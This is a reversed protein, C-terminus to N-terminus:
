RKYSDLVERAAGSVNNDLDNLAEKLEPIAPAGIGKLIDIIIQRESRNHNRLRSLLHPITPRSASGCKKLTALGENVAKEDTEKEVMKGITMMESVTLDGIEGLAEVARARVRCDRDQLALSLSSSAKRALPGLRQLTWATSIRVHIDRDRLSEELQKAFPSIFPENHKFLAIHSLAGAAYGRVDDDDDQLARVLIPIAKSAAEAVNDLAQATTQRVKVDKDQLGNALCPVFSKDHIPLYTGSKRGALPGNRGLALAAAERVKSDEDEM